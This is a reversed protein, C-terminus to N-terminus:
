RMLILAVLITLGGVAEQLGISEGLFIFGLLTAFIPDSMEIIQVKGAETSNLAKSTLYFGGLTPVIALTFLFLLNSQPLAINEIHLIAPILLFVSGFGMLWWLFGFTGGIRFKRCLVLFVSYSSGGILAYILNEIKSFNYNTFILSAGFIVITISLAKKFTIQEHLLFYGLILTLIGASYIVFTVTAIPALSFAKTEFFYLLFIGFFALIAIKSKRKSLESVQRRLNKNVLGFFSIFLFAFFCKFFAVQYFNLTEFSLKSIVGISSNCIAALLAYIYGM